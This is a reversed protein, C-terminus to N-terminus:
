PVGIEEKGRIKVRTMILSLNKPIGLEDTIVLIFIQTGPLDAGSANEPLFEM